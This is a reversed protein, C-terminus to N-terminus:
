KKMEELLARIHQFYVREDFSSPQPLKMEIETIVKSRVRKLEEAYYAHAIDAIENWSTSYWNKASHERMLEFLEMKPEPRKALCVPCEKWDVCYIDTESGDGSKCKFWWGNWGKHIEPCPWERPKFESLEKKMHPVVNGCKPCNGNEDCSAAYSNPPYCKCIESMEEDGGIIQPYRLRM